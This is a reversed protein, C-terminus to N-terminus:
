SSCFRVRVSDLLTALTRSTPYLYWVCLGRMPSNNEGVQVDKRKVGAATQWQSIGKCKGLVLYVYLIIYFIFFLWLLFRLSIHRTYAARGDSLNESRTLSPAVETTYTNSLILCESKTVDGTAAIAHRITETAESCAARLM